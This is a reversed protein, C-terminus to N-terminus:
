DYLLPIRIVVETGAATGDSEVLDNVKVPSEDGNSHQMMAIRSATIRLGMSKHRTASKSALESAKRRGIGNDTIKLYLWDGEQWVEIDLQGKEEKQMLGHWIANEVYPQIILPQVKLVEIDLDKPVSIKYDFHYNFRLAEMELYLGLSELESELSILSAQSNQLIMRVLKSFKILYESAEAKNNQLIFRNISNLSNFIFHPNMQARLAQMELESAKQKIEAIQKEKASRELQMKFRQRTRYRILLYFISLVFIAAVIRFWWTNWFAPIINIMLIKEPGNFENNPNSAQMALRYSGSPLAEFLITQNAQGYQWDENKGNQELKYRVHGKGKSYFDINSTEIRITNQNYALNLEELYNVGASLPSSKRNVTLSNFYVSATTSPSYREAYIRDLGCTSSDANDMNRGIGFYINGRADKVGPVNAGYDQKQYGDTELLNTFVGTIPNLRSMQKSNTVYWLNGKNDFLMNLMPDNNREDQSYFRIKRFEKDYHVIGNILGIWYTQDKKDYIIVSWNLNDFPHSIKTWKGNKNEFTVNPMADINQLFMYSDELLSIGGVNFGGFISPYPLLLDATLSGERVQFFGHQNDCFIIGNKYPALFTYQGIGFTDSGNTNVIRRCQRTRIDMEYLTMGVYHGLNQLSGANLWAKQRVTDIYLPIIASGKIGPLDKERLVEFKETDPDFINLGNSTGIWLKGQPGALITSIMGSSLSGKNFPNANFRKVIPNFPLLAHIGKNAWDSTWVIGDPACYIHLNAEGAKRQLDPDSFLQQLQNTQPDYILIGNNFTSFWIRGNPDIDIGVGRDYNKSGTMKDLAEIRRFKKDNLSFELLGEGSNIWVSNRKPDFRMDEASHRPRPEIDHRHKTKNYCPWGYYQTTGNLFIQLLRGYGKADYDLKWISNSSEEFFSKDTNLGIWDHREDMVLLKALLRRKLTHINIASFQSGPEVCFIEDKTAWFPFISLRPDIDTKSFPIEILPSFNTFTDAKIDYRSIGKYTSIWINHLSDEKFAMIMGTNMAGRKNDDPPYTKFVAGDFRCLEDSSSGGFSGVWLFGNADRIMTNAENFPLGDESTWHIAHYTDLANVSNMQQAVSIAAAFCCTIFLLIKKSFKM